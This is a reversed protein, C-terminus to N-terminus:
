MIGSVVAQELLMLIVDLLWQASEFWKNMM